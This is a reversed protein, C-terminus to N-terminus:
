WLMGKMFHVLLPHSGPTKEQFGVHCASVASLYVKMTSFSLGKEVLEQLFIMINAVSSQFLSVSRVECWTELIHWNLTYMGQTSGAKASQITDIVNAPLGSAM